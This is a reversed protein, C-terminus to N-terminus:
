IDTDSKQQKTIHSHKIHHIKIKNHIIIISKQVTREDSSILNEIVEKIKLKVNSFGAPQAKQAIYCDQSGTQESFNKYETKNITNIEM